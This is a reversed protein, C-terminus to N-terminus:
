PARQRQRCARDRCVCHNLGIRRVVLDRDFDVNDVFVVKLTRRLCVRPRDPHNSPVALRSLASAPKLQPRASTDAPPEGPTITEGNVTPGAHTQEHQSQSAHRYRFPRSSASAFWSCGIVDARVDVLAGGKDKATHYFAGRVTGEGRDMDRREPCQCASTARRLLQVEAPFPPSIAQSRPLTARSVAAGWAHPYSTSRHRSRKPRWEGGRRSLNRTDLFGLSPRLHPGQTHSHVRSSNTAGSNRSGKTPRPRRHFVPGSLRPFCSPRMEHAQPSRRKRQANTVAACARHGSGKCPGRRVRIHENPFPSGSIPASTHASANDQTQRPPNGSRHGRVADKSSGCTRAVRLSLSHLSPAQSCTGLGSSCPCMEHFWSRVTVLAVVLTAGVILQSCRRHVSMRWLRQADVCPGHMTRDHSDWPV